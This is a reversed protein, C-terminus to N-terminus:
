SPYSGRGPASSVSASTVRNGSTMAEDILGASVTTAALLTAVSGFNVDSDDEVIIDKTDLNHGAPIIIRDVAELTGTGRDIEIKASASSSGFKFLSGARDDILYDIPFDSDAAPDPTLASAGADRAAHQFMYRPNRWAM